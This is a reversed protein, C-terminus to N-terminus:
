MVEQLFNNDDFVRSTINKIDKPSNQRGSFDYEKLM